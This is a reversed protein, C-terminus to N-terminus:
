TCNYSIRGHGNGNGNLLVTSFLICIHNIYELNHCRQQWFGQIDWDLNHNAVKKEFGPEASKWHKFQFSSIGKYSILLILLLTVCQTNTNVNLDSIKCRNEFHTTVYNALTGQSSCVLKHTGIQLLNTREVRAWNTPFWKGIFSNVELKLSRPFV